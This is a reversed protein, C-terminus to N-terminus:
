VFGASLHEIVTGILAQRLADRGRARGVFWPAGNLMVVSERVSLPVLVTEAAGPCIILNVIVSNDRDIRVVYPDPLARGITSVVKGLMRAVDSAVDAGHPFDRALSDWVAVMNKTDGTDPLRADDARLANLANLAATRVNM